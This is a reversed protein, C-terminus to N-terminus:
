ESDSKGFKSITGQSVACLTEQGDKVAFVDCRCVAQRKSAHVVVARAILKEGIAPVLYNVKYELTMVAPGLVSGGAFTIANDAVYSIVGGHVSGHQHKYSEQIPVVMEVKGESFGTVEAGLFVSFPQSALVQQAFQLMVSM